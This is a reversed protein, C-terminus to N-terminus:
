KQNTTANNIETDFNFIQYDAKYIEYIDKRNQKSTYSLYDDGSHGHTARKTAKLNFRARLFRDIDRTKVVKDLLIKKNQDCVFWWQPFLGLFNVHSNDRTKSDIQELEQPQVHVEGYYFAKYNDLFSKIDSIGYKACTKRWNKWRELVKDWDRRKVIHPKVGRTEPSYMEQWFYTGILRQLPDRAATFKYCDDWDEWTYPSRNGLDDVSYTEFLDKQKHRCFEHGIRVFQYRKPFRNCLRTLCSNIYSGGTRPIHWLLNKSVM